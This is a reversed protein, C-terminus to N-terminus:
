DYSCINKFVENPFDKEDYGGRFYVLGIIKEDITLDGNSDLKAKENIEQLTHRL